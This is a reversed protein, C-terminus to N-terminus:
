CRVYGGPVSHIYGELELQILDSLLASRESQAKETLEDLTLPEDHLITLLQKKLESLQAWQHDPEAHGHETYEKDITQFDLQGQWENIIDDVCEVLKAGQKILAHCGKSQPHNISGPIAFVERNQELAFRATHLSGSQSAAEVVLVGQSLGSILRNRRPFHRQKPPTGLPMESILVGNQTLQQAYVQHSSPYVVDLGTALVAISTGQHLAGKHAAIDVGYALGSTITWGSQALYNAFQYATKRGAPTPKRTGVIALQKQNLLEIQGQAYLLPPPRHIQKLLAPYYADTYAILQCDPSQAWEWAQELRSASVAQLRESQSITLGLTQLDAKTAQFIADVSSYHQILTQIRTVSLDALSGALWITHHDKNM